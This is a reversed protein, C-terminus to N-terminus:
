EESREPSPTAQVKVGEAVSRVFASYAFQRRRRRETNGVEVASPNVMSEAKLMLEDLSFEAGTASQPTVGHQKCAELVLYTFCSSLHLYEIAEDPALRRKPIPPTTLSMGVIRSPVYVYTPQTNEKM